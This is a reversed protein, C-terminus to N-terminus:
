HACATAAGLRRRLREGGRALYQAGAAELAPKIAAMFEQYRAMDYIEVDFIVYATM